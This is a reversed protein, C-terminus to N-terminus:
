DWDSLAYSYVTDYEGHIVVDMTLETNNYVISWFTSDQSVAELCDMAAAEDALVGGAAKLADGLIEYRDQGGGINYWEGETLFFNTCWLYDEESEVVSLENDVYEVVVSSGEADAIQFHFCSNASSHMDYQRLLEVAEDVTAAKDLVMRIASSTTIDTLGQDQNTPEVDLQLVGISLGMENIGDMPIYPAALALVSDVLGEPVYDDGYGVYGLNVMSLSEYGDEPDTHVLMFPKYPNDFNRGFVYDGDILQANFTSCGLDPLTITVPLGKMLKQIVFESLEQDTAAGQELFEDLGYDATYDMTYYPADTVKEISGISQLEHRFMLGLILVCCLLLLLVGGVVSLVIKKAKRM